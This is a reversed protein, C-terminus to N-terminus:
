KWKKRLKHGRKKGAFLSRIEKELVLADTLSPKQPAAYWQLGLTAPCLPLMAAPQWWRWEMKVANRGPLLLWTLIHYPSIVQLDFKAKCFSSMKATMQREMLKTVSSNLGTNM